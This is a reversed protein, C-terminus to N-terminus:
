YGTAPGATLDNLGAARRVAPVAPLSTLPQLKPPFLESYGRRGAPSLRLPFAGGTLVNGM